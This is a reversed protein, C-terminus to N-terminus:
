DDDCSMTYEIECKVSWGKWFDSTYEWYGTSITDTIDYDGLDIDSPAKLSMTYDSFVTYNTDSEQDEEYNVTLSIIAEPTGSQAIGYELDDDLNWEPSKEWAGTDLSYLNYGGDTTIKVSGWYWASDTDTKLDWYECKNKCKIENITYYAKSCATSDRRELPAASVAAISLVALTVSKM